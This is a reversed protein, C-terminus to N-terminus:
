ATTFLLVSAMFILTAIVTAAMFGASLIDGASELLTDSRKELKTM